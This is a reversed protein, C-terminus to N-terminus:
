SSTAPRDSGRGRAAPAAVPAPPIDRAIEEFPLLKLEWMSPPATTGVTVDQMLTAFGQMEVRISWVGDTLDAFQYRGQQDTSTVFQKDGLSATVTAGPVPLGGFTVQGTNATAAIGHRQALVCVVVVFFVFVRLATKM